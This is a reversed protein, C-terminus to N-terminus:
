IPHLGFRVPCLVSNHYAVVGQQHHACLPCPENQSKNECQFGPHDVRTCKKCLCNEEIYRWRAEYGLSLFQECKYLQNCRHCPCITQYQYSTQQPKVVSTKHLNSQVQSKADVKGAKPLTIQAACSRLDQKAHVMIEEKLFMTFDQWSPMHQNKERGDEQAAWSTALAVRNRDWMRSTEDDLKSAAIVAFIADDSQPMIDKLVDVCKTSKNMMKTLSSTSAKDVKSISTFRQVCLNVQNYADGYLEKLMAWAEDFNNGANSIIALVEDKCANKLYKLKDSDSLENRGIVEKKFQKEFSRWEYINGSFCEYKTLIESAGSTSTCPLQNQARQEMQTPAIQMGSANQADISSKEENLIDIRKQIKSQLVSCLADIEENEDSHDSTHDVCGLSVCKLEFKELLEKLRKAKENLDHKTLQDFDQALVKEFKKIKELYFRRQAQAESKEKETAEMKSRKREQFAKKLEIFAESVARKRSM